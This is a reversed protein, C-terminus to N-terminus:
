FTPGSRNAFRNSRWSPRKPLNSRSLAGSNKTLSAGSSTSTTSISPQNASREHLRLPPRTTAMMPLASAESASFVLTLARKLRKQMERGPRVPAGASSGGRQREVLTRDMMTEDLESPEQLLARPRSAAATASKPPRGRRKASATATASTRQLREAGPSGQRKRQRADLNRQAARAAPSEGHVRSPSDAISLRSVSAGGVSSPRMRRVSGDVHHSSSAAPSPIMPLSEDVEVNMGGDWEELAPDIVDMGVGDAGGGSSYSNSNSGYDGMDSLRSGLSGEDDEIEDGPQVRQSSSGSPARPQKRIRSAAPTSSIPGSSRPRAVRRSVGMSTSADFNHSYSNDDVSPYDGFDAAGDFSAEQAAAAAAAAAAREKQRPGSGRPRGPKRAGSGDASTSADGPAAAATTSTRPAARKAPLKFQFDRQMAVQTGAGRMREQRRDAFRHTSPGAIESSRPGVNSGSARGRSSSGGRNSM